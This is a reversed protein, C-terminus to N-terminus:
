ESIYSTHKNDEDKIKLMANLNGGEHMRFHEVIQQTEKFEDATTIPQVAALFRECTKDVLPIPLRPLSKQFYLTPLKSRQLYQYS